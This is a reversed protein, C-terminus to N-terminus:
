SQPQCWTAYYLAFWVSPSCSLIYIMGIIIQKGVELRNELIMKIFIQIKLLIHLLM